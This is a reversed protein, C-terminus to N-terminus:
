EGANIVASAVAMQGVGWAELIKAYDGSDILSQLAAQVAEILKTKDPNMAIGWPSENGEIAVADFDMEPDNARTVAVPYDTIVADSRGNQIQLIADMEDPFRTIELAKSGAAACDAAYQEALILASGNDVVSVVKGCLDTPLLVGSPNGGKVLFGNGASVYDVFTVVERREANDTMSSMIMDYRGTTVGPIQANFDEDNLEFGVGLTRAIALGLAPDVGILTKGDTAFMEMPPYGQSTTMRLGKAKIEDPVLGALEANPEIANVIEAALDEAPAQQLSSPAKDPADDAANLSQGGCATTGLLVAGLLLAIGGRRRNDRTFITM